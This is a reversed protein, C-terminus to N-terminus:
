SSIARIMSQGMPVTRERMKRARSATALLSRGRSSTAGSLRQYGVPDHCDPCLARLDAPDGPQVPIEGQHLHFAAAATATVFGATAAALLEGLHEAARRALVPHPIGYPCLGPVPDADEERGPCEAAIRGQGVAQRQQAQNGTRQQSVTEATVGPRQAPSRHPTAGSKQQHPAMRGFPSSFAASFGM